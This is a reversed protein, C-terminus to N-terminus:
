LRSIEYLINLLNCKEYMMNEVNIIFDSIAKKENKNNRMNKKHDGLIKEYDFFNMEGIQDIM